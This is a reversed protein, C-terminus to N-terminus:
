GKFLGWGAGIMLVRQPQTSVLMRGWGEQLGQVARDPM